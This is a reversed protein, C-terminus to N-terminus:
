IAAGGDIILVQGAIYQVRGSVLLGVLEAVEDPRGLRPVLKRAMRHDVLPEDVAAAMETDILGPAVCNVSINYRAVERALSRSLGEIAAKSAGYATQGVLGHSASTSTVNVIIGQRRVMMGPVVSKCCNVVGGLNTRMVNWWQENTSFLFLKDATVGANNVLVDIQGFTSHVSEVMSAVANPESVDAQYSVIRGGSRNVLEETVSMASKNQNYNAAIWFGDTVLRKVIARGIGRSAGTVLAVKRESSM